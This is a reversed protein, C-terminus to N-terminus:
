PRGRRGPGGTEPRVGDSDQQGAPQDETEVAAGSAGGEDAMSAEREQDVPTLGPTKTASGKV